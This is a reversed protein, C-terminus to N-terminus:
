DTKKFWWVFVSDYHVKGDARSTGEAAQASVQKEYHCGKFGMPAHLFDCDTPEPDIYVKDTPVRYTFSYWAVWPGFWLAYVAVAALLLGWFWKGFTAGADRKPVDTPQGTRPRPQKGLLGKIEQLLSEYEAM